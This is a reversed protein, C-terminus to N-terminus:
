RCARACTRRAPTSRKRLRRPGQQEDRREVLAAGQGLRQDGRGREVAPREGGARQLLCLARSEDRRVPRGDPEPVGEDARRDLLAGAISLPSGCMRREGVSVGVVGLPAHPMAGGGARAGVGIHGRVELASRRARHGASRRRDRRSTELARGLQGRVRADASSEQELGCVQLEVEPARVERQSQELLGPRQREARALRRLEGQQQLGGILVAPGPGLADRDTARIAASSASECSGSRVRLASSTTARLQQHPLGACSVLSRTTAVASATSTAGSWGARRATRAHASGNVCASCTRPRM